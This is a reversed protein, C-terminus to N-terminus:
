PWHGGKRMGLEAAGPIHSAILETATTGVEKDIRLVGKLSAQGCTDQKATKIVKEMKEGSLM